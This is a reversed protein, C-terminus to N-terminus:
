TYPGRTNCVLQGGPSKSHQLVFSHRLACSSCRIFSPIALPHGGSPGPNPGYPATRQYLLHDVFALGRSARRYPGIMSFRNFYRYIEIWPTVRSAKSNMTTMNSRRANANRAVLVYYQTQSYQPRVPTM